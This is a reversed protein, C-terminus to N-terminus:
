PMEVPEPRRRVPILHGASQEISRHTAATRWRSILAVGVVSPDEYIHLETVGDPAVQWEWSILNPGASMSRDLQELRPDAPPRPARRVFDKQRTWYPLLLALWEAVNRDERRLSFLLWPWSVIAGVAIILQPLTLGAGLLFLPIFVVCVLTVMLESLDLDLGFKKIVEFRMTQYHATPVRKKAM